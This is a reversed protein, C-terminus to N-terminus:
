DGSHRNREDYWGEEYNYGQVTITTTVSGDSNFDISTTTDGVVMSVIELLGDNILNVLSTLTDTVITIETMGMGLDELTMDAHPTDEILTEIMTYVEEDVIGDAAHHAFASFCFVAFSLILVHLIKKM